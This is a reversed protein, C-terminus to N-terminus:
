SRQARRRGRRRPKRRRDSLPSRMLVASAVYDDWTEFAFPDRFERLQEPATLVADPGLAAVFRDLAAEPLEIM